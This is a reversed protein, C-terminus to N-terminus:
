SIASEIEYLQPALLNEAQSENEEFSMGMYKTIISKINQESEENTLSLYILFKLCIVLDKPNKLNSLMKFDFNNTKPSSM